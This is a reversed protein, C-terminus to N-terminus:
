FAHLSHDRKLDGYGIDDGLSDGFDSESDDGCITSESSIRFLSRAKNYQTTPAARQLM